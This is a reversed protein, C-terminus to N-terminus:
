LVNFNVKSGAFSFVSCYNTSAYEPDGDINQAIIEVYHNGSPLSGEPIIITGSTTSASYITKLANKVNVIYLDAGTQHTWSIVIDEDPNLKGGHLVSNGSQEQFSTISVSSSISRIPIRYSLVSAYLNTRIYVDIYSTDIELGHISYKGTEIDYELETINNNGQKIYVYAGSVSNGDNGEVAVSCNIGSLSGSGEAYIRVLPIEHHDCGICLCIFVLIYILFHKM